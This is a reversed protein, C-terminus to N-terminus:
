FTIGWGKKVWFSSILGLSLFSLTLFLYSLRSSSIDRERKRKGERKEAMKGVLDMGGLDMRDFGDEMWGVARALM